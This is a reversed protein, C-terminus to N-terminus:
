KGYMKKNRRRIYEETSSESRNPLHKEKTKSFDRLKEKGMKSVGRNRKLLKEPHHEAIAMMKRQKVSKAPM